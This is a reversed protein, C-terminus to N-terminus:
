DFFRYRHKNNKVDWHIMKEGCEPCNPPEIKKKEEETLYDEEQKSCNLCKYNILKM